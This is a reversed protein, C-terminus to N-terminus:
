NYQINLYLILEEYYNNSEFILNYSNLLDEDFISLNLNIYYNLDKDGILTQLHEDILSTFCNKILDFIIIKKSDLELDKFKDLYLELFSGYINLDENYSNEIISEDYDHFNMNTKFNDMILKGTWYIDNDLIFKLFNPFNVVYCSIINDYLFNSNNFDFNNNKLKMIIELDKHEFIKCLLYKNITKKEFDDFPFVYDDRIKEIYTYYNKFTNYYFRSKENITSLRNDINVSHSYSIDTNLINNTFNYFTKTSM